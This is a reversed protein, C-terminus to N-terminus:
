KGTSIKPIRFPPTFWSHVGFSVSIEAHPLYNGRRRGIYLVFARSGALKTEISEGLPMFRALFNTNM